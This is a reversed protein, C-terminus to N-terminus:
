KKVLAFEIATDLGYTWDIRSNAGRFVARNNWGQVYKDLAKESSSTWTTGRPLRGSTPVSAEQLEGTEEDIIEQIITHKIKFLNEAAEVISSRTSNELMQSVPDTFFEEELIPMVKTEEETSENLLNHHISKFYSEELVGGSGVLIDVEQRLKMPDIKVGSTAYISSCLRSVALVKWNGDFRGKHDDYIKKATKKYWADTLDEDGYGDLVESIPGDGYIDFKNDFEKPDPIGAEFLKKSKAITALQDDSPFRSLVESLQVYTLRKAVACRISSDKDSLFKIAYKEPLLRAALKRAEKNTDAAALLTSVKISGVPLDIGRSEMVSLKDNAAIFIQRPDNSVEVSPGFVQSVERALQLASKEKKMAEKVIGQLKKLKLQM